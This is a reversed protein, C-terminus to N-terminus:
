RNRAEQVLCVRSVLRRPAVALDLSAGRTYVAAMRSEASRSWGMRASLIPLERPDERYAETFWGRRFAHVPLNRACGAEECLTALTTRISAPSMRRGRIGIWFARQHVIKPRRARENLYVRLRRVAEGGDDPSDIDAIGLLREKRGKGRRVMIVGADLDVDDVNLHSVEDARLGTEMLLQTLAADRALVFRSFRSYARRRELAQEMRAFDALGVRPQIREPARPPDVSSLDPVQLGRKIRLAKMLGRTAIVMIRAAAENGKSRAAHDEDQVARAGAAMLIVVAQRLIDPSLDEPRNCGRAAAFRELHALESRYTAITRPSAPRAPLFEDLYWDIAGSLALPMCPEGETIAEAAARETM